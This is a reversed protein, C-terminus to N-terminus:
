NLNGFPVSFGLWPLAIFEGGTQGFPVFLGFDLGVSKIMRRGGLSILLMNESENGLNIYYNETLLYGNKGTRVIGSVNIMPSDAWAGDAYGYGLGFTINQDRSGFTTVGYAIGFGLPGQDYFDGLITGALVGGGVNFKDKVIPVSFKPTVWVPTPAGGFLFLPMMGAGISINDTIGASAQNFLVWLNQYYGEGKRLGYGNPAWFYRTAQPNEPWFGGDQGVTGELRRMSKINRRAISIEGVTETMLRVQEEDQYTIRGLFENGDTTEIRYLPGKEEQEQAFGSQLNIGITILFLFILKKM